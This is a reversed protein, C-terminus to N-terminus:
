LQLIEGGKEINQYVRFLSLFLIFKVLLMRIILHMEEEM